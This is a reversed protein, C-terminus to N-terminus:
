IRLAEDGAEWKERPSGVEVTAEICRDARFIGLECEESFVTCGYNPYGPSYYVCDESCLHKGNKYVKYEVGVRINILASYVTDM